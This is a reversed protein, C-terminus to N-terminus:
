NALYQFHYTLDRTATTVTAAFQCTITKASTTAYVQGPNDVTVSAKSACTGGAEYIQAFNSTPVVPLTLTFQTDTPGGATETTTLYGSCTVVQGVQSWIMSNASVVSSAVNAVNALTPTYTGSRVLATTASYAAQVGALASHSPKILGLATTSAESFGVAVGGSVKRVRWNATSTAWAAGAGAYSANSNFAYHGFGVDVDTGNVISGLNLGAGYANTGASGGQYELPGIGTNPDGNGIASWPATAGGVQIELTLQDTLQIPTKFRVRKNRLTTLAGPTTTGAPGYGFSTTDAADSTSTNYAYEVDNQVVNVTGSGAWESIPVFAKIQISDANAITGPAAQTVASRAGTVASQYVIALATTTSYVAQVVSSVGALKAAGFGLAEHTTSGLVATNITFGTPILFTASASTPAGAFALNVELEMQDGVRRYQGTYTTNSSMAGTPTYSTWGSVAAGQVVVGPGIVVDSIDLTHTQTANMGIRLEIWKATLAPADFTTRYTGTLAPLASVASVDTSLAIRANGTSYDVNTNSYIDVKFDAAVATGPKMDFQVKLKKGVDADDLIIRYYAYATSGSVGTLLLGTKSTNPRPLSAATSDTAVTIGAGSAAWGSATSPATVYNKEGSGSGIANLNTGDDSLLQNATTDYVLTAQKRTLGTLTSLAAKPVTLRLSDSATGGQFDKNTLAETGALTALTGATPYTVSTTNTLTETKAFSGTRTTTCASNNAIGTGGNAAGLVGTVGTTMPLGTCSTLVGSVPTGLQTSNTFIASSLTKNTLTDISGQSVLQDSADPFVITRNNTHYSRFTATKGATAGSFDFAGVKTVDSPDVIHTATTITGSGTVAPATITPTNITPSTLVKNTLTESGGITALTGATPLTVSTTNTLTLTMGYSGSITVTSSANNAVGTGGETPPVVGGAITALVNGAFTLQNSGNLALDLDAGNTVNRWSIVDTKALRAWGASAVNATLTKLYATKLGYTAGFSAEATLTFTGGTKQLCGAAIAVLYSTVNTGWSADALAPVTYSVGNFSVSTSM